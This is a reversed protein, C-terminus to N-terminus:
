IFQMQAFGSVQWRNAALADDPVSFLVELSFNLLFLADPHARSGSCPQIQRAAERKMVEYTHCILQYAHWPRMKLPAICGERSGLLEPGHDLPVLVTM